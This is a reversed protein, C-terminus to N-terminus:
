IGDDTRSLGPPKRKARAKVWSVYDKPVDLEKLENWAAIVEARTAKKNAAFFDAVFNCYCRIPVTLAQEM